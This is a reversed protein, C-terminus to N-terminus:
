GGFTRACEELLRLEEKTWDNSAGALYCYAPIGRTRWYTLKSRNEEKSLYCRKFNFQMHWKFENDRSDRKKQQICAYHEMEPNHGLTSWYGIMPSWAVAPAGLELRNAIDDNSFM